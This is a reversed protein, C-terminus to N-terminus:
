GRSAEIPEVHTLAIGGAYGDVMVVPEGSAMVWAETRTRSPRGPGTKEGPWFLVPTGAPNAENWADRVARARDALVVAKHRV